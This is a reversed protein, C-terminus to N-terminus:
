LQQRKNTAPDVFFAFMKKTKNTCGLKRLVVVTVVDIAAAAAATAVATFSKPMRARQCSGSILNANKKQKSACLFRWLRNAIGDNCGFLEFDIADFPSLISQNAECKTKIHKKKVTANKNALENSQDQEQEHESCRSELWYM